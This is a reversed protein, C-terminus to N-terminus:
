FHRVVLDPMADSSDDDSADSVDSDEEDSLDEDSDSGDSSSTEFRVSSPPGAAAAQSPM